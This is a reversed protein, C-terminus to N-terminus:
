SGCYGGPVRKGPRTTPELKLPTGTTLPPYGAPHLELPIVNRCGVGLVRVCMVRVVSCCTGHEYFCRRQRRKRFRPAQAEEFVTVIDTILKALEEGSNSVLEQTVPTCCAGCRGECTHMGNLGIKRSGCGGRTPGHGKSHRRGGSFRVILLVAHIVAAILLNFLLPSLM